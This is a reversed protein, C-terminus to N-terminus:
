KQNGMMKELSLHLSFFCNTKLVQLLEKELLAWEQGRSVHSLLKDNSVGVSAERPKIQQVQVL